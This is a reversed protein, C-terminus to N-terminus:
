GLAIIVTGRKHRGEVHRHADVIRELPYLRDVVPQRRSRRRYSM